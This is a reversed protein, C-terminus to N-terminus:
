LKGCEDLIVAVTRYIDTSYFGRVGYVPSQTSHATWTGIEGKLNYAELTLLADLDVRFLCTKGHSHQTDSLHFINDQTGWLVCWSNGIKDM